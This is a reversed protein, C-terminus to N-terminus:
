ASLAQSRGVTRVGPLRTVRNIRKAAENLAIAHIGKDHKYPEMHGIYTDDRRFRGAPLARPTGPSLIHGLDM